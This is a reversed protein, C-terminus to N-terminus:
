IARYIRVTGHEDQEERHCVKGEKELTAMIAYLRSASLTRGTAEEFQHLLTHEFMEYNRCQLIFLLVVGHEEEDYMWSKVVRVSFLTLFLAPLARGVRLSIHDEILWSVGYIIVAMIAGLVIALLSKM